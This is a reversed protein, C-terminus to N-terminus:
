RIPGPRAARLACCVIRARYSLCSSATIGREGGTLTSDTAFVLEETDNAQRIWAVCLTM